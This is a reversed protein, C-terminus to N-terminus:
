AVTHMKARRINVPTSKARCLLRERASQISSKEDAEEMTCSVLSDGQVYDEGTLSWLGRFLSHDGNGISQAKVSAKVKM